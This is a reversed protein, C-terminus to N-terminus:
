LLGEAGGIRRYDLFDLRCPFLRVIFPMQKSPVNFTVSFTSPARMVAKSRALRHGDNQKEREKELYLDDNRGEGGERREERENRWV